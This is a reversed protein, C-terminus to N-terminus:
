IIQELDKLNSYHERRLRKLDKNLSEKMDETDELSIALERRLTVEDKSLYLIDRPLRNHHIKLKEADSEMQKRNLEHIQKALDVM